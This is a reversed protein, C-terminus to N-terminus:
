KFKRGKGVDLANSLAGMIGGRGGEGRPQEDVDMASDDGKEGRGPRRSTEKKVESLVAQVAREQEEQALKNAMDQSALQALQSDLASLVSSTTQARNM